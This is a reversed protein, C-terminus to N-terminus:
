PQLNESVPKLAESTQTHVQSLVVDALFCGRCVEPLSGADNIAFLWCRSQLYCCPPTTLMARVLKQLLLGNGDTIHADEATRAMDDDLRATLAGKFVDWLSLDEKPDLGAAVACEAKM